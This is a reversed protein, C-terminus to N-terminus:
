KTNSQVKPNIGFLTLGYPIMDAAVLGSVEAALLVTKQRGIKARWAMGGGAM